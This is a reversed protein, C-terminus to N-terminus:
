IVSCFANGVGKMNKISAFMERIEEANGEAILIDLCGRESHQHMNTRIIHGFRHMIKNMDAQREGVHTVMFVVTQQGKMKEIIKYENLLSALGMRLLRSRSKIGTLAMMNEMEKVSESDMSMSIIEM